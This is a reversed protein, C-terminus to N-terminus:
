VLCFENGEPDALVVFPDEPDDSDNLHTAGIDIARQAASRLAAWTTAEDAGDPVVVIDLHVRNKVVKEEPVQQFYIRPLIGDPDVAHAGSDIEEQTLGLSRLYEGRSEFGDPAAKDAYGLLSRWFSALAEPRACDITVLYQLAM